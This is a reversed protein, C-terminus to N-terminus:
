HNNTKKVMALLQEETFRWDGRPGVKIGKIKGLRAWRRITKPAVGLFKAAKQVDFLEEIRESM